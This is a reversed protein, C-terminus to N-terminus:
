APVPSTELSRWLYVCARTRYPRWPEALRGVAAPDPLGGLKYEAQVAKRIGLDGAALVDIRGLNFMLFVDATWAGIGTVAMLQGKVQEDTLEPLRTLNLRGDEVHEALSRLARSKAHSLGAAVRLQEQDAALVQDATPVRGGFQGLLRNYIARAVRTSLQQSVIALILAGFRDGRAAPLDLSVPGLRNILGHMTPDRAALHQDAEDLPDGNAYAAPTGRPLSRPHPSTPQSDMAM